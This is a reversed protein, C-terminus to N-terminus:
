KVVRPLSELRAQHLMTEPRLFATEMKSDEPWRPGGDRGQTTPPCNYHISNTSFGSGPPDWERSWKVAVPGSKGVATRTNIQWLARHSSWLTRQGGTRYAQLSPSNMVKGAKM